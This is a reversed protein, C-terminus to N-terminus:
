LQHSDTILTMLIRLVQGLPNKALYEPTKHEGKSLDIIQDNYELGLINLFNAVRHSNGSIPHGYLTIM